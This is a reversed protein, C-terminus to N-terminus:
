VIELGGGGRPDSGGSLKLEAGHELCVAMVRSMYTSREVKNERKALGAEVEPAFAPEIFILNDEESHFRPVSVAEKAPLGHELINLAVQFVSSMIRSGGPAGLALVPKGDKLIMVPAGGGGRKGPVISDWCQSLPNFHGLFNNHLFGLGPTIAGSGAISGTTHTWSVVNGDYDAITLHTTGGGLGSASGGRLEKGQRILEACHEAYERSSFREVLEEGISYPPDNKLLVNDMFGIRMIKSLLDIYEDSNPDMAALDFHEAIQLMQVMQPGSGPPLVSVVEYDRYTGRTPTSEWVSYDRLDEYTIFAGNKEFDAAMQKALDGKYFVDPGEDAVRQLTQGMEKQVLIEGVDYAEYGNKGYIRRADASIALKAKLGPYGPRDEAGDVNRWFNAIYPYVAFGESAYEIAPALVEAWSVKGSGYREFMHFAGKIFGPLMISQYGVQNAEGALIFRGVTESRGRYLDDWNKPIRKSGVTASADIVAVEKTAAESVLALSSGGIGCLLPNVVGQAFATAVAADFANGGKELIRKGAKAALPEPAVVIGGKVKNKM